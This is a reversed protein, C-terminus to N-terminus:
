EEEEFKLTYEFNGGKKGVGVKVSEKKKAAAREERLRGLREELLGTEGELFM